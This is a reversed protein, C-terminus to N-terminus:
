PATVKEARDPSSSWRSRGWRASAWGSRAPVGVAAVVHGGRPVDHEPGAGDTQGGEVRQSAAALGDPQDVAGPVGPHRIVDLDDAPVGAVGQEGDCGGTTRGDDVLGEARGVRLPRRLERGQLGTDEGGGFGGARPQDAHLVDVHVPAGVPLRQGLVASVVRM